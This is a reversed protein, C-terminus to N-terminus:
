VVATRRQVVCEVRGRLERHRADAAIPKPVQFLRLSRRKVHDASGYRRDLFDAGAFRPMRRTLREGAEAGGRYDDPILDSGRAHAVESAFISCLPMESNKPM